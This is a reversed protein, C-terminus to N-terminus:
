LGLEEDILEQPVYVGLGGLFLKELEAGPILLKGHPGKGAVRVSEIRGRSIWGRATSTSRNALRAFEDVTYFEKAHDRIRQKIIGPQEEVARAAADFAEKVATPNSDWKRRVRRRRSRDPRMLALYLKQFDTGSPGHDANTM